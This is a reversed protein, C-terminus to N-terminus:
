HCSIDIPSHYWTDVHDLNLKVKIM